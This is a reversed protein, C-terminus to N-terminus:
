EAGIDIAMIKIIRLGLSLEFRIDNSDLDIRFQEKIKELRYLMTKYHIFLKKAAEHANCNSSLYADLTALLQSNNKRDCRNLERLEPTIFQMLMERNGICSVLKLISTDDYLTVFGGKEGSVMSGYNLAHLANRYSQQIEDLKHALSGVGISLTLGRSYTSFKSLLEDCCHKIEMRMDIKQKSFSFIAIKSKGLAGILCRYRRAKLHKDIFTHMSQQTLEKATGAELANDGQGHNWPMNIVCCIYYAEPNLNFIQADEYLYGSTDSRPHLLDYIFNNLNKEEISLIALQHKTESLIATACIELIHPDFKGRMEAKELVAFYARIVANFSVPFSVLACNEAADASNSLRVKQRRFYLNELHFNKSENSIWIFEKLCDDTSLICEFNEDYVAVPTKLIDRCYTLMASLGESRLSISAFNANIEAMTKFHDPGQGKAAPTSSHTNTAM